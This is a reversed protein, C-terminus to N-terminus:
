PKARDILASGIITIFINITLGYLGPHFGFIKGAEVFDFPGFALGLSIILGTILGIFVPTRKLLPFHIGLMIAPALQVLIDFKRDILAILSAHNKLLLALFVLLSVVVWSCKKGIQTLEAQDAQRAVHAAYIDKTFMSSISLMASDATSMLAALVASFIVVVVTYGLISNEQIIRLLSALIQDTAAGELGPIYALAYIGAIVAILATIFPMFAMLALSRNMTRQSKAAYIRQIAHPYLAGGMGIILIYSLWERLMPGQPRAIKFSDTTSSIKETAASLPGFQDFLLALLVIFGIILVSGQIVDTWAIARIGGLTGYIVMVLALGVVGYNYAIDGYEPSALGQLARGMTMLQALLYNSLAVIMVIPAIFSIAKSKYRDELYDTPTVYGKVKSLRHLKPAFALYFVIMALMYHVAILWGFGVRYTAGAVGFFTNGSYQTAYLTLLLVIFGFGRGALYFDQLTNEKRAARGAFGLLLLSAIYLTIFAWAGPGFPLIYNM